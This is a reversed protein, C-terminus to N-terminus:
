PKKADALARTVLRRFASLPQAGSLYYDNILFAPTGNVGLKNAIDIDAAVKAQHVHNDLAAKFRAMDLGLKDALADLNVRELGEEQGQAEYLMDHYTWFAAAGKQALVEEAAEAALQAHAHFPLPLHRWVIRLKGPFAKELEALTPEVRKCFPCQFDSFEQIVVPASTAGRAAANAPVDAHKKEPEPPNEAGKMLEAYVKARPTGREVLARAKALEEDITKKFADLPQAGSLRRGNIFFHPTGRAQFDSAQDVSAEIREALKSSSLQPELQKWSLGQKKVLEEFDDDELAPQNRFLAEHLKWFADNGHRVYVARALKASPLARPHFPLPNDKWVIRVDKGYLRKVEDLTAEVRKCFPCQFDSFQVITVLADKPGAQPDDALVPLNWTKTDEEEDAARAAPPPPATFNRDTLTVYVLRPPTGSLTLQRAAALQEDVHKVFVALPQAGSVTVGNIRFAPTGTAGITKALAIDEDVKQGARGSALWANLTEAQVGAASAWAQFNERNLAQQSGFARDHFEFFAQSGALMFVAAAAEAAPRAADHFPLPNHKFVIRLQTPGYKAKLAELTPQVRACFPCQFDSIEVITVPADVSGWQPDASTVPVKALGQEPRALGDPAPTPSKPAGETVVANSAGGSNGASAPPKSSGTGSCAFLLLAIGLLNTLPANRVLRALRSLAWAPALTLTTLALPIRPAPSPGSSM